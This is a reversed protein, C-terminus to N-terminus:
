MNVRVIAAPADALFGSLEWFEVRFIEWFGFIHM